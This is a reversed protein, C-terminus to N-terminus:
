AEEKRETAHCLCAPNTCKNLVLGGQFFGNVLDLERDGAHVVLQTREGLHLGALVLAGDTVWIESRRPEDTM